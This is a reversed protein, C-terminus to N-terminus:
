HNEQPEKQAHANEGLLVLNKYKTDTWGLKTFLRSSM